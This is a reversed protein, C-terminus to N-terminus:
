RESPMPKPVTLSGAPVCCTAKAVDNGRAYASGFAVRRAEPISACADAFWDAIAGSICAARLTAALEQETPPKKSAGWGPPLKVTWTMTKGALPVVNEYRCNDKRVAGRCTATAAEDFEVETLKTGCRALSDAPATAKCSLSLAKEDVEVAFGWRDDIGEGNGGFYWQKGYVCAGGVVPEDFGLGCLGGVLGDSAEATAESPLESSCGAVAVLVVAVTVFVTTSRM